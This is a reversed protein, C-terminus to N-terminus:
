NFLPPLSYLPTPPILHYLHFIHRLSDPKLVSFSTSPQHSNSVEQRAQRGEKGEQRDEKGEQAQRGQHDEQVGQPCRGEQSCRSCCCRSQPSYIITLNMWFLLRTVWAMNDLRGHNGGTSFGIM